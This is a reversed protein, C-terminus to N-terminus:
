NISKSVGPFQEVVNERNQSKLLEAIKMAREALQEKSLESLDVVNANVDLTSKAGFGARDLVAVAAKVANTYDANRMADQLTNFADEVMSYLTRKGSSIQGATLSERHKSRKSSKKEEQSPGPVDDAIDYISSM